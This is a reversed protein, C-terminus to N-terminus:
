GHRETAHDVRVFRTDRRFRELLRGRLLYRAVFFSMSAGVLSSASLVLTGRVVGFLAGVGIDLLTSPVLLVSAVMYIAAFVWVASGGLSEVWNLVDIWAEGFDVRSIAGAAALAASTLIWLPKRLRLPLSAGRADRGRGHLGDPMWPFPGDAAPGGKTGRLPM